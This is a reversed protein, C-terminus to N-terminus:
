VISLLERSAAPTSANLAMREIVWPLNSGREKKDACEWDM